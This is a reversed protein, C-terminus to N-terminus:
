GLHPKDEWARVGPGHYVLAKMTSRTRVNVDSTSKLELEITAM